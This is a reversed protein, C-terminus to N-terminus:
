QTAIVHAAGAPVKVSLSRTAADYVFTAQAGDITVTAPAADARVRLIVPRLARDMTIEAGTGIARAGLLTIKDDEDHLKFTSPPGPYVLVTLSGKSDADGLGTVGDGVELPVIAGERVFLPAKARDTADYAHLVTGGDVSAAGQNFWDYWRAGAPLAVDRTGTGDLIPAVLFAEGLMFRYDNPWSAPEGIPSLIAGSGAYAEEALSYFFPVLEHHLKAWYRYIVVTEDARDPVTWPTLNARGHLQMFPSLAGMAIWRAFVAQDFPIQPGLLNKDDRDLYGGVDSG